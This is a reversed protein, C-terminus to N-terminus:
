LGQRVWEYEYWPLFIGGPLGLQRLGASVASAPLLLVSHLELPQRDWKRLLLNRFRWIGYLVHELVGVSFLPSLQQRRQDCSAFDRRDGQRRFSHRFVAPDRRWQDGSVTSAREM